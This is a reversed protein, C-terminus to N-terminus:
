FIQRSFRKIRWEYPLLKRAVFENVDYGAQLVVYIHVIIYETDRLFASLLCSALILEYLIFPKRLTYSYIKINVVYRM